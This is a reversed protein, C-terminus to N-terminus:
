AATMSVCIMSASRDVLRLLAVNVPDFPGAQRSMLRHLRSHLPPASPRLKSNGSAQGSQFVACAVSMPMVISSETLGGASTDVASLNNTNANATSTVTRAVENIKLADSFPYDKAAKRTKDASLDPSCLNLLCSAATQSMQASQSLDSLIAQPEQINSSPRAATQSSAVGTCPFPDSYDQLLLQGFAYAQAAQGLQQVKHAAPFPTEAPRLKDVVDAIGVSTLFAIVQARHKSRDNLLGESFTPWDPVSGHKPAAQRTATM